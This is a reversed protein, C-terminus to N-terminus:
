LRAGYRADMWGNCIYTPLYASPIAANRRDQKRSWGSFNRIDFQRCARKITGFIRTSTDAFISCM